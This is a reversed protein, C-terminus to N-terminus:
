IIASKSADMRFAMRVTKGSVLSKPQLYSFACFEVRCVLVKRLMIGVVIVFKYINSFVSVAM